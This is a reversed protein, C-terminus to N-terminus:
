WPVYCLIDHSIGCRDGVLFMGLLGESTNSRFDQESIYESSIPVEPSKGRLLLMRLPIIRVRLSLVRGLIVRGIGQSPHIVSQDGHIDIPVSSWSLPVISSVIPAIVESSSLVRVAVLPVSVKGSVAWFAALPSLIISRSVEDIKVVILAERFGVGDFFVGDFDELGM